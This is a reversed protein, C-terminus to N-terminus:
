AEHLTRELDFPKLLEALRIYSVTDGHLAALDRTRNVYDLTKNIMRLIASSGASSSGSEISALNDRVRASGVEDFFDTSNWTGITTKLPFVDIRELDVQRMAIRELAELLGASAKAGDILFVGLRRLAPLAAPEFLRLAKELGDTDGTLDLRRLQLMPKMASFLAATASRTGGHSSKFVLTLHRLTNVFLSLFDVFGGLISATQIALRAIPPLSVPVAKALAAFCSQNSRDDTFSMGVDLETLNPFKGVLQWLHSVGNPQLFTFTFSRMSTSMDFVRVADLAQTATLTLNAVQTTVRALISTAADASEDGASRRIAQVLESPNDLQLSRLNPLFDFMGMWLACYEPTSSTSMHLNRVFRGYKPAIVLQFIPRTMQSSTLNEFCHEAAIARWDKSTAYLAAIAKPFDLRHQRGGRNRRYPDYRVHAPNADFALGGRNQIEEMLEAIRLDARHCEDAIKVKLEHPLHGLQVPAM